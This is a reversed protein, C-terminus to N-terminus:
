EVQTELARILGKILRTPIEVVVTPELTLPQGGQIESLQQPRLKAPLKCLAISFDYETHAVEVYNAYIPALTEPHVVQIKATVRPKPASPEFKTTPSVSKKPM